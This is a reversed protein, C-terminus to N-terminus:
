NRRLSQEVFDAKTQIAELYMASNEPQEVRSFIESGDLGASFPIVDTVCIFTWRVFDGNFRELEESEAAGIQLAKELALESNEAQILRWQEDFQHINGGTQEIRFVLKSIFWNM